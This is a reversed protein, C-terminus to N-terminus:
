ANHMAPSPTIRHLCHKFHKSISKISEDNPLQVAQLRAKMDDLIEMNRFSELEGFCCVHWFPRGYLETAAITRTITMVNGRRMGKEGSQLLEVFISM